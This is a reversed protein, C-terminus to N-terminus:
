LRRDGNLDVTTPRSDGYYSTIRDPLVGAYHCSVCNGRKGSIPLPFQVLGLIDKEPAPNKWAALIDPIGRSVDGGHLSLWVRDIMGTVPYNLRDAEQRVADFVLDMKELKGLKGYAEAITLLTGIKKFPTLSTAEPWTTQPDNPHNERCFYSECNAVKESSAEDGFMTVMTSAGALDHLMVLSMAGAVFGETGAGVERCSQADVCQQYADMTPGMLGNDFCLHDFIGRLSSPISRCTPGYLTNRYAEAGTLATFPGIEPMAAQVFSGVVLLVTRANLDDPILKNAALNHQLSQILFKVGKFRLIEDLQRQRSIPDSLRLLGNLAPVISHLDQELLLMGQSFGLLMQLRGMQRPRQSSERNWAVYSKTKEYWAEMGRFDELHVHRWFEKELSLEYRGDSACGAAACQDPVISARTLDSHHHWDIGESRTESLNPSRGSWLSNAPGCSVLSTVAWAFFLRM